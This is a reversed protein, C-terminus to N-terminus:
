RLPVTKITNQLYSEPSNFLEPHSFRVCFEAVVDPLKEMTVHHYMRRIFTRLCGFIGEIESTKGFEWKRHIDRKHNVPWWRDIGRYIGAGDTHLDSEPVVYQFLFEAVEPRSVSTGAVFSHVLKKSGKQKAMVLSLSKFYAEDMQITGNLSHQIDPLQKRFTDFWHRVAKESLKCLKESQLVPVKQTWCWLLLWFLRLPLKIGNLWTGSFLSFSRRCKRCRYRGEYTYIKRSHCKPCFIHSGFIIKRLFKKIQADSPVQYLKDM